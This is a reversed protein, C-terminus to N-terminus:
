RMGGSNMGCSPSSKASIPPRRHSDGHTKFAAIMKALWQCIPQAPKQASDVPREVETVPEISSKEELPPKGRTVVEKWLSEAMNKDDYYFTDIGWEDNGNEHTHRMCQYMIRGVSDKYWEMDHSQWGYRQHSESKKLHQLPVPLTQILYEVISNKVGSWFLVGPFGTVQTAMEIQYKNGYKLLKFEWGERWFSDLKEEIQKRSEVEGIRKKTASYLPNVVIDFRDHWYPITTSKQALEQSLRILEPDGDRIGIVYALAAATDIRNQPGLHEWLQDSLLNETNESM